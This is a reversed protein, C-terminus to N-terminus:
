AATAKIHFLNILIKIFNFFFLAVRVSRRGKWATEEASILPLFDKYSFKQFFAEGGPGAVM